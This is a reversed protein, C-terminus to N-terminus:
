INPAIRTSFFSMMQVHTFLVCLGVWFTFKAQNIRNPRFAIVIALCPRQAALNLMTFLHKTDSKWEFFCYASAFLALHQNKQKKKRIYVHSFCTDSTFFVTTPRYILKRVQKWLDIGHTVSHYANNMLIDFKILLVSSFSIFIMQLKIPLSFSIM